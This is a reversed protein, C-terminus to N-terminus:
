RRVVSVGCELHEGYPDHYGLNQPSLRLVPGDWKTVVKM